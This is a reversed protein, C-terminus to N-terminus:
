SHLSTFIPHPVTLSSFFVSYRSDLKLGRLQSQLEKKSMKNIEGNMRSITKYVPHDLPKERLLISNEVTSSSTIDLRSENHSAM